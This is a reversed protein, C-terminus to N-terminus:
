DDIGPLLSRWKMEVFSQQHGLNLGLVELLRQLYGALQLATMIRSLHAQLRAKHVNRIVTYCIAGPKIKWRAKADLYVSDVGTGCSCARCATWLITVSTSLSM